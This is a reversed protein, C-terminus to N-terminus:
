TSGSSIQENKLQNSQVEVINTISDATSYMFMLSYTPHFHFM